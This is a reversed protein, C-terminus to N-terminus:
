RERLLTKLPPVPDEPVNLMRLIGRRDILWVTPLSNLGLQRVLRGEWGQGDCLVPFKLNFKRLTQRATEPSRDLSVGLCQVSHAPFNIAVEAVRALALLSPPSLDAFFCLVVIKGRYKELAVPEGDISTFTFSVPKGLMAIRRLDDAIQLRLGEQAAVPAAIELLRKQEIPQDEFLGALGAFLPAIRRDGPYNARFKGARKVLDDRSKELDRQARQMRLALEAFAVDARREGPLVPNALLEELSRFAKEVMATDGTLDGTVLYVRALRLRADIAHPSRPHESAFSALAARQRELQRLTLSEADARSKFETAPTKELAIAAAWDSEADARLGAQTVLLLAGTIWASRGRTM